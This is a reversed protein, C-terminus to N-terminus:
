SITGVSAFEGMQKEPVLPAAWDSHEIPLIVGNAELRQLKNDVKARLAIRDHNSAVHYQKKTLTCSRRLAKLKGLGDKFIYPFINTFDAHEIRHM